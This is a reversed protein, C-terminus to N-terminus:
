WEDEPQLGSQFVFPEQDGDDAVMYPPNPRNESRASIHSLTGTKDFWITWLDRFALAIQQHNKKAVGSVFSLLDGDPLDPLQRTYWTGPQPKIFVEWRPATVTESLARFRISM